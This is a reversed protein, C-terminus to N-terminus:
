PTKLAAPCNLWRTRSRELLLWAERVQASMASARLRVWFELSSMRARDPVAALEGGAGGGPAAAELEKALEVERAQALLRGLLAGCKVLAGLSELERLMRRVRCPAQSEQDLPPHDAKLPRTNALEEGALGKARAGQQLNAVAPVVEAQDPARAM